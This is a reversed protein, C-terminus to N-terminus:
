TTRLKQALRAAAEKGTRLAAESSLGDLYDGCPELPEGWGPLFKRLATTECLRGPPFQAIGINWAAANQFLERKLSEDDAELRCNGPTDWLFVGAM